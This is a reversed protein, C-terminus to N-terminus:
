PSNLYTSSPRRRLVMSISWVLHVVHVGLIKAQFKLVLAEETEAADTECLHADSMVLFTFPAEVGVRITNKIIQM